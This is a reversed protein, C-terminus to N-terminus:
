KKYYFCCMIIIIAIFKQKDIAGKGVLGLYMQYLEDLVKSSLSNIGRRAVTKPDSKINKM